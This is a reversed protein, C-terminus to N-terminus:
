SGLSYISLFNQDALVVSTENQRESIVWYKRLLETKAQENVLTFGHKQYFKIAWWAAKWTGILVPKDSKDLLYNLLISGCGKGQLNTFTYAHRILTVDYRNQIGMVAVLKDNNELGYFEVGDAIESELYEMPFYPTHYCDDPIVGKYAIAADNIIEYIAHNDEFTCKRIMLKAKFCFTIFFYDSGAM